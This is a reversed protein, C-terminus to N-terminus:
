TGPKLEGGSFPHAQSAVRDTFAAALSAACTAVVATFALALTPQGLAAAAAEGM